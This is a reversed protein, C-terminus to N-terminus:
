SSSGLFSERMVTSAVAPLTPGSASRWGASSASPAASASRVERRVTKEAITALM